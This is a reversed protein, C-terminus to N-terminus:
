ERRRAAPPRGPRAIAPRPEAAERLGSLRRVLAALSWTAVLLAVIVYGLIEFHEALSAYAALPRSTGTADTVLAALYVTAVFAAVLVTMGTTAANYYLRRAPSRYAWSYARSMILSDATDCATMGAAFLLPLTLVAMMPIGGQSATSASLALLTM